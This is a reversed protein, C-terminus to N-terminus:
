ATFPNAPDYFESTRRSRTVPEEHKLVWAELSAVSIRWSRNVRNGALKGSDLLLYLAQRSLGTERVAESVTITKLNM